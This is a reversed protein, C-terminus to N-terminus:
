VEIDRARRYVRWHGDIELLVFVDGAGGGGASFTVNIWLAPHELEATDQACVPPGYLTAGDVQAGRLSDDCALLPKPEGVSVRLAYGRARARREREAPSHRSVITDFPSCTQVALVIEHESRAGSGYLHRLLAETALQAPTAHECPRAPRLTRACGLPLLALALVLYFCSSARQSTSMLLHAYGSADLRM